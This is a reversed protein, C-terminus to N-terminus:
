LISLTIIRQQPTKYMVIDSDLWGNGHAVPAIAYYGNAAHIYVNEQILLAATYAIHMVFQKSKNIM